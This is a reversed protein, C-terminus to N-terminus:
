GFHWFQFFQKLKLILTISHIDTQEIILGFRGFWLFFQILKQILLISLRNTQEIIEGINSFWILVYKLLYFFIMKVHTIFYYTYQKIKQEAM